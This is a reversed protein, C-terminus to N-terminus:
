YAYSIWTLLRIWVWGVANVLSNNGTYVQVDVQGGVRLLGKPHHGESFKITVPFRQSDRLWGTKGKVTLL